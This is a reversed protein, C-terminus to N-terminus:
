LRRHGRVRRTSAHGWPQLPRSLAARSKGPTLNTEIREVEAIGTM